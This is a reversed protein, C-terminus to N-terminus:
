KIALDLTPLRLAIRYCNITKITIIYCSSNFATASVQRRTQPSRFFNRPGLRRKKRLFIEIKVGLIESSRKKTMSWTKRIKRIKVTNFTTYSGKKVLFVVIESFFENIVGKKSQEYKRACGVVSSRLIHPPPHM